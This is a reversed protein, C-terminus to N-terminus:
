ELPRAVFITLVEVGRSCARVPSVKDDKVKSAGSASAKANKPPM